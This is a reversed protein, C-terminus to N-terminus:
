GSRWATVQQLLRSPNLSRNLRPMLRQRNQFLKCRSCTRPATACSASSMRWPLSNGCNCTKMAHSTMPPASRRSCKQKVTDVGLDAELDLDLDLMDPPYDTKEAVLNIVKEEVGDGGVPEPAGADAPVPASAALPDAAAIAPEEMVM